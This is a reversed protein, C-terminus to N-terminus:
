LSLEARLLTFAASLILAGSIAIRMTLAEGFLLAAIFIAYAPELAIFGSCTSVSLRRVAYFYLQHTLVTMVVGLVALWIWDTPGHPPRSSFPLFPGVVLVVVFNQSLSAMVPNVDQSLTKGFVAFLAFTVASGLGAFAGLLFGDSRGTNGGVLLSVALIITLGAIIEISKPVRNKGRSELFITFLPFAAFTLTAVAVGSLQVSAFFLLWHAALIVGTATLLPLHRRLSWDIKGLVLGIILLTCSAFASRSAVIWLPSVDLKGCLATGGLVIASFNIAILGQLRSSKM